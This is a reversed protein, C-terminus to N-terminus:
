KWPKQDALFAVVVSTHSSSFVTIYVRLRPLLQLFEMSEGLLHVSSSMPLFSSTM